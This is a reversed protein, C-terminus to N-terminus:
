TASVAWNGCDVLGTSLDNLCDPQTQPLSASPQVTDVLRAGLGGYYGMRYIDLRYDTADTAIKFSITDGRNVSIDTAFGQISTDGADTVDWEEPPNGALCNEAVIANAPADCPPAASGPSAWYAVACLAFTWRLAADAIRTRM